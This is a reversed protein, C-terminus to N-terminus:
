NRSVTPLKRYETDYFYRRETHKNSRVENCSALIARYRLNLINPLVM